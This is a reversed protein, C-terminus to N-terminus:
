NFKAKFINNLRILELEKHIIQSALDKWESYLNNYNINKKTLWAQEADLQIKLEENIKKKELLFQYNECIQLM